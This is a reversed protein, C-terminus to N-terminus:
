APSRYMDEIATELRKGLVWALKHLIKCGLAPFRQMLDALDSRFIAIVATPGAARASALRNDESLLASEGFFTGTDLNVLRAIERGDAGQRFLEVEGRKIIYMAAGPTGQEFILEGPAYEREHVIGALRKQERRNLTEFLPTAALFDQVSLPGQRKRFVNRFLPADPAVGQPTADEVARDGQFLM